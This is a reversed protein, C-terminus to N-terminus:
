RVTYAGLTEVFEVGTKGAAVNCSLLTLHANIGTAEADAFWESLEAKYRDINGWKLTGAGLQVGGAYGHAVITVSRGGGTRVERRLIESIQAVGDRNPDLVHANVGPQLGALLM